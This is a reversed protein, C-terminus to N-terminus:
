RAPRPAPPAARRAPKSEPVHRRQPTACVERFPHAMGTRDSALHSAVADSLRTNPMRATCAGGRVGPQARAVAMRLAGRGDCGVLRNWGGQRGARGHALPVRGTGLMSVAGRRRNRSSEQGAASVRLDPRLACAGGPTGPRTWGHRRIQDGVGSQGISASSAAKSGSFNGIPPRLGNPGSCDLPGEPEVRMFSTASSADTVPSLRGVSRNRYPM